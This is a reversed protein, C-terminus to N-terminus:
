FSQDSTKFDKWEEKTVLDPGEFRYPYIRLNKPDLDYDYTRKRTGDNGGVIISVVYDKCCSEIKFKHIEKNNIAFWSFSFGSEIDIGQLSAFSHDNTIVIVKDKYLYVSHDRLVYCTHPEKPTTLEPNQEAPVFSEAGLLKPGIFVGGAAAAALIKFFEKRNM